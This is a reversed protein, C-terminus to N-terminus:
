SKRVVDVGVTKMGYVSSSRGNSGAYFHCIGTQGDPLDGAVAITQGDSAIVKNMCDASIDIYVYQQHVVTNVPQGFPM